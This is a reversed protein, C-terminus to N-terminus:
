QTYLGCELAPRVGLLLHGVCFLIMTQLAEIELHKPCKNGECTKQEYIVAKSKINKYSKQTHLYICTDADTHADQAKSQRRETQNPGIRRRTHRHSHIFRTPSFIPLIQPSSGMILIYQLPHLQTPLVGAWCVLLRPAKDGACGPLLHHPCM